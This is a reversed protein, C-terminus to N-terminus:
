LSAQARIGGSRGLRGLTSRDLDIGQRSTYRRRVICHFTIPMSASVIVHAVTAETPMGGPILTRLAGPGPCDRGRLLPLRIEPRRTVIVRFQAPVIDLRESVDEGIVHREHGCACRTSRRSLSSKLARYTSEAAIGPEGQAAEPDPDANIQRDDAEDEAHLKRM